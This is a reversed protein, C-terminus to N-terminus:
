WKILWGQELRLVEPMSAGEHSATCRVKKLEIGLTVDRSLSRRVLTHSLTSM